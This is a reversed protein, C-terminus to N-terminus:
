SSGGSTVASHYYPSHESSVFAGDSLFSSYSALQWINETIGLFRFNTNKGRDLTMLGLNLGQMMMSILYLCLDQKLLNWFMIEPESTSYINM